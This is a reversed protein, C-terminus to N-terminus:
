SLVIFIHAVKKLFMCGVTGGSSVLTAMICASAVAKPGMIAAFNAPPEAPIPFPLRPTCPMCSSKRLRGGSASAAIGASLCAARACSVPAAAGFAGLTSARGPAEGTGGCLAGPTAAGPPDAVEGGPAAGGEECGFGCWAMISCTMSSIRFSRLPSTSSASTAM